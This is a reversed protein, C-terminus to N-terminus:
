ATDIDYGERFGSLLRQHGPLEDLRAYVWDLSAVSLACSLRYVRGRRLVEPFAGLTVDRAMLAAPAIRLVPRLPAVRKGGIGIRDEAFNRDITDIGAHHHFDDLRQPRALRFRRAPHPAADLRHQIPGLSKTIARTLVRRAPAAM